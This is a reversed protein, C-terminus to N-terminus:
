EKNRFFKGEDLEDRARPHLSLNAKRLGRKFLAPFFTFIWGPTERYESYLIEM